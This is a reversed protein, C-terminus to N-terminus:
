PTPSAGPLLAVVAEVVEPLTVRSTDVIVSGEAPRMPSDPRTSDRRDRERQEELVDEWNAVVGRRALEEFRRRARVEPEATLFVKLTAGPFVVTGIDRGEVVGGSRAALERQRRVMERRVDPIASVVSAMQSVEPARLAETVDEGDLIVRQARPDGEFNVGLREAFGVVARRGETDLEPGLGARRALLGVARYMAGTDLYPLGLRVALERATASKGAGAPGDIAIILPARNV